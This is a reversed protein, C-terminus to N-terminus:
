KWLFLAPSADFFANMTFRIPSQPRDIPTMSIKTHNPLRSNLVTPSFTRSPKIDPANWTLSGIKIVIASASNM